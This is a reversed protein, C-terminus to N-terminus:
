EVQLEMAVYSQYLVNRSRLSMQASELAQLCRIRARFQTHVHYACAQSLACKVVQVEAQTSTSLFASVLCWSVMKNITELCQSASVLHCVVFCCHMFNVQIRNACEIKPIKGSGRILNGQKLEFPRPILSVWRSM